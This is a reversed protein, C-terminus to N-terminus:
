KETQTGNHKRHRKKDLHVHKQKEEKREKKTKEIQELKTCKVEVNKITLLLNNMKKGSKEKEETENKDNEYNNDKIHIIKKIKNFIWSCVYNFIKLLNNFFKIIIHICDIKKFLQDLKFVYEIITSVNEAESNELLKEIENIAIGTFTNFFLIPMIFIFCGYILYNVLNSGSLSDIGMNDTVIQGTVFTLMQFFTFEFTGNFSTMPDSNMTEGDDLYYTSRNRFSLLFGIMFLIMIIILQASKKIIKGFVDVYPGIGLFKDLRMVFICYSFIITISYLASKLESNSHTYDLIIVVICLLFDVLEILNKFKLIYFFFKKRDNCDLSDFMQGLELIFFYLVALLCIAKSANGLKASDSSSNHQKYVEINISYFILFVLFIFLNMYYVFRPMLCWKKQLLERTTKHLLFKHDKTQKILLLVHAYKQTDKENEIVHIEKKEEEIENDIPSVINKKSRNRKNQKMEDANLELLKTMKKDLLYEIIKWWSFEFFNQLYAKRFIEYFEKNNDDIEFTPQKSFNLIKLLYIAIEENKRFLAIEFCKKYDINKYFGKPDDIYSSDQEDLILFTELLQINNRKCLNEISESAILKYELNELSTNEKKEKKIFYSLTILYQDNFDELAILFDLVSWEFKYFKEIMLSFENDILNLCKKNLFLLFLKEKLINKNNNRCLFLKESYANTDTYYITTFDNNKIVRNEYFFTYNDYLTKSIHKISYKVFINNFFDLM